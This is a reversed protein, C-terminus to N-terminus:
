FWFWPIVCVDGISRVIITGGPGPACGGTFASESAISLPSIERGTKFTITCHARVTGQLERSWSREFEDSPVVGEKLIFTNTDLVTEIGNIPCFVEIAILPCDM